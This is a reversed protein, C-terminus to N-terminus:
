YNTSKRMSLDTDERSYERGSILHAEHVVPIFGRLYQPIIECIVLHDFAMGACRHVFVKKVQTIKETKQLDLAADGRLASSSSIETM